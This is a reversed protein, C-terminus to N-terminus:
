PQVEEAVLRIKKGKMRELFANTEGQDPYGELGMSFHLSGMIQFSTMLSGIWKMTQAKPVASGTEIPPPTLAM